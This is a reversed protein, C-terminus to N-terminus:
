FARYDNQSKHQQFQDIKRKEKTTLKKKSPKDTMSYYLCIGLVFFIIISALLRGEPGIPQGLYNTGGSIADDEKMEQISNFFLLTNFVVLCTMGLIILLKNITKKKM